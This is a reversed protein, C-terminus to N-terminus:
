SQQHGTTSFFQSASSINWLLKLSGSNKKKLDLPLIKLFTM